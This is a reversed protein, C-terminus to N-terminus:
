YDPGDKYEIGKKQAQERVADYIKYDLSAEAAGTAEVKEDLFVQRQSALAQIKGELEARKDANKSLVDLQESPSMAQMTAPLNNADIEDWIWEVVPSTM